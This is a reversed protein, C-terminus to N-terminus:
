LSRHSTRKLSRVFNKKVFDLIGDIVSKRERRLDNIIERLHEDSLDTQEVGDISQILAAFAMFRPSAESVVLGINQNLNQLEQKAKDSHGADILRYANAIHECVDNVDSGIGADLLVYKNYKQFNEIPLEDISDYLRVRKGALVYVRM